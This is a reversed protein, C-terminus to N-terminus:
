GNSTSNIFSHLMSMKCYYNTINGNNTIRYPQVQSMRLMGPALCLTLYGILLRRDVGVVDKPM